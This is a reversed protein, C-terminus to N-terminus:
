QTQVIEYINESKYDIRFWKFYWLNNIAIFFCLYVIFGVVHKRVENMIRAMLGM